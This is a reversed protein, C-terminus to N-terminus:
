VGNAYPLDAAVRWGGGPAPGAEVRGGYMALRERMGALGHGDGAAAAAAGRGDDTVQIHLGEAGYTLRVAARAQPGAHKLVNTLAEQVARYASLSQGEALEGPVGTVHLDVPLGADRCSDLLGQLRDLGPLPGGDPPDDGTRLIGLLRRMEALAGRGTTSITELASIASQPDRQAAYRGGDAQVVIVSLNHAVVDHMERAIRAREQAAAIQARQDREREAQRARQVLENVYAQRLGRVDGLAWAGATAAAYLMVGTLFGGTGEGVLAYRQSALMAGLLGVALGLRSAWRSGYAAISYLALLVAADIPSLAVGATWQVFGALSVVAFSEVPRVRRFVLATFMVAGLALQLWDLGNGIASPLMLLTFLGAALVADPVVPHRQLWAYFRDRRRVGPLSVLEGPPSQLHATIQSRCALRSDVTISDPRLTSADITPM